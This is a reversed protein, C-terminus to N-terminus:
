SGTEALNISEFYSAKDTPKFMTSIGTAPHTRVWDNLSTDYRIISGKFRGKTAMYGEIGDGVPSRALAAAREAYQEKTFGPYQNSHDSKGGNGFHNDLNKQAFGPLDPNAGTPSPNDLTGIDTENVNTSLALIKEGIEGKLEGNKGVPVHTGNITRWVRKYSDNYQGLGSEFRCPTAGM